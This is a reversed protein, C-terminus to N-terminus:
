ESCLLVSDAPLRFSYRRIEGDPNPIIEPLHYAEFQPRREPVAFEPPVPYSIAFCEATEADTIRSHESRIGNPEYDVGDKLCYYHYLVSEVFLDFGQGDCLGHFVSFWTKNENWTLDIM